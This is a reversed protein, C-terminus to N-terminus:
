GTDECLRTEKEVGLQKVGAGRVSPLSCGIPAPNFDQFFKLFTNGAEMIEFGLRQGAPYDFTTISYSNGPTVTVVGYDQGKAPQNNYTTGTTAPLKLESFDLKGDGSFNYSSTKLDQQKPFLFVLSCTKGADGPPIDFNFISAITSSVESFLSTGFATDPHSKDVPVILHPFVAACFGLSLLSSVM